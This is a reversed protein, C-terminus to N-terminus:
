VGGRWNDNDNFTTLTQLWEITVWKWKIIIYDIITYLTIM